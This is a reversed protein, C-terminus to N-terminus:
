TDRLENSKKSYHILYPLAGMLGFFAPEFPSNSSFFAYFFTVLYIIGFIWYEKRYIYYLYLSKVFFWIYVLLGLVGSYLLVSLFPNHPYDFDRKPDEPHFKRAFRYTYDFGGGILKQILTYKKTYLYIAYRWRDIRPGAFRDNAMLPKFDDSITDAASLSGHFPFLSALNNMNKEEVLSTKRHHKVVLQPYAFTVYGKLNKFDTVGKQGFLYSGYVRGKGKVLGSVKLQVWEGKTKLNYNQKSSGTIKGTLELRVLNGNFDPSVYCYVSGFVSDGPEAMEGWYLTRSYYNLGSRKGETTKNYKAGVVGKPVIDANSGKLPYEKLFTSATYTEPNKPNHKLVKFEPHAYIVYGKLNKFDKAKPLEFYTTSYYVEGTEGWNNITLKQWTGKRSLDYYTANNGGLKKSSGGLRVKEGNFDNSVYAFVSTKVRQNAVRFRVKGIPNVNYALNKSVRAQTGRDVKLGVSQNPVIEVNDGTLPYVRKFNSGAWTIPNNPDFKLIKEEPYAFLVYGKISDTPSNAKKRFGFGVNADGDFINFSINLKQWTGKRELDYTHKTHGFINGEAYFAVEDGNFNPSVYAFISSNYRIDKKFTYRYLNERYLWLGINDRYKIHKKYPMFAIVSDLPGNRTGDPLRSVSVFQKTAWTIPEAPDTSIEKLEPYAYIVFGNLNNFTSDKEKCVFLSVRVDNSDAYFSTQLKQWKGKQDIDYFWHSIGKKGNSSIRAWNGNFDRSMYCYVSALYRRGPEFRGEFLKSIYYANGKSKLPQVWRGVKAGQADSPVEKLGLENLNDVLHYNGSAWGTYPFRPDFNAGWNEKKVDIYSIDGRFISKGSITLWNIYSSTVRKNFDSTALWQSRKLPSVGFVLYWLFFVTLLISPIFLISNSRFVKLRNKNIFWSSLWFLLFSVIFVAAIILGRRSTALMINVLLVILALQLLVSQWKKKVTFLFSSAFLIGVFCVLTFFNDDIALSTGLPYGLGKVELVGWIQGKLQFYLKLM